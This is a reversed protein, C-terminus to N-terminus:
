TKNRDYIFRLMKAYRIYDIDGYKDIYKGAGFCCKSVHRMAVGDKHCDCECIETTRLHVTAVDYLMEDIKIPLSEDVTFTLKVKKAM